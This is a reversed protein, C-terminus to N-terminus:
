NIHCGKYQCNDNQKENVNWLRRAGCFALLCLPIYKFFGRKTKTVDKLARTQQPQLQNEEKAIQAETNSSGHKCWHDQQACAIVANAQPQNLRSARNAANNSAHQHANPASELAPDM